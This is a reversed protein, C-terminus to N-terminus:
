TFATLGIAKKVVKRTKKSAKRVTDVFNAHEAAVQAFDARSLTQMESYKISQASATRVRKDIDQDTSLLAMEGFFAGPFLTAVTARVQSDIISKICDVLFDPEGYSGLKAGCVGTPEENPGCKLLDEACSVKPM